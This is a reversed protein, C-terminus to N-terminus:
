QEARAKQHTDNVIFGWEGLRKPNDLNIAKLMAAASRILNKVDPLVLDRERYLEEAKKRLNEAERHKELLTNIKPMLDNPNYDHLVNLPSGAVDSQHKNIISQALLILGEVDNPVVVRGATKKTSMKLGCQLGITTTYQNEINQM